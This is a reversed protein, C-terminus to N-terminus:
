LVQINRCLFYSPSTYPHTPFTNLGFHSNFLPASHLPQLQKIDQTPHSQHPAKLIKWNPLIMSWVGHHITTIWPDHQLNKQFIHCFFIWGSASYIGPWPRRLTLKLLIIQKRSRNIETEKLNKIIWSTMCMNKKSKLLLDGEGQRAKSDKLHVSVLKRTALM